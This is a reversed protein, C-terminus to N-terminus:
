ISRADTVEIVCGEFQLKRAEDSGLPLDLNGIRSSIRAIEGGEGKISGASWVDTVTIKFAICQLEGVTGFRSPVDFDYVYSSMGSSVCGKHQVFEVVSPNTV